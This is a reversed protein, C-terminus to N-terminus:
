RIEPPSNKPIFISKETGLLKGGLEQASPPGAEFFPLPLKGPATGLLYRHLAAFWSLTSNGATFTKANIMILYADEVNLEPGFIEAKPFKAKIREIETAIADTLIVVSSGHQQPKQSYYDLSLVGRQESDEMLDGRRIHMAHYDVNLSLEAIKSSSALNLVKMLEGAWDSSNKLVYEANQYFGSIYISYKHNKADEFKYSDDFIFFTSSPVKIRIKRLALSGLLLVKGIRFKDRYIHECSNIFEQLLRPAGDLNLVVKRNLQSQLYHCYSIAFLRNGFGGASHIFIPIRMFLKESLKNINENSLNSMRIFVLFGIFNFIHRAIEESAPATFALALFVINPGLIMMVQKYPIRRNDIFYFFFLICVLTLAAIPVSDSWVALLGVSASGRNSRILQSRTLLFIVILIGLDSSHLFPFVLALATLLNNVNLASKRLSFFGCVLILTLLIYTQQSMVFGAQSIISHADM